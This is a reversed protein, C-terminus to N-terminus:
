HNIELLMSLHADSGIIKRAGISLFAAISIGHVDKDVM